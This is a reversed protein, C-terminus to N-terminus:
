WRNDNEQKKAITASDQATSRSKRFRQPLESRGFMLSEGTPDTYTLWLSDGDVRLCSTFGAQDRDIVESVWKGNMQYAIKLTGSGADDYSMYVNGDSDLAIGNQDPYGVVGLSDVVEKHWAGNRKVAYKVLRSKYDCYTIHPVDSADLAMGVSYMPMPARSGGELIETVWQRGDWYAFRLGATESRVNAYAIRPWGASNLALSQFKGSGEDSDITRLEWYQGNWSVFRLRTKVLGLGFEEYFSIRPRDDADLALSAAYGIREAPVMIPQKQWTTGDWYAYKLRGTGWEHYAIHPRQKSDLALSTWGAGSDVRTGFWRKIRSDWFSYTLSHTLPSHSSVHANGYKDLRISSYQGGQASPVRGQQWETASLPLASFAGAAIVGFPALLIDRRTLAGSGLKRTKM